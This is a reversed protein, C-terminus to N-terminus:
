RFMVLIRLELYDKMRLPSLIQNNNFFFWNTVETEGYLCVYAVFGTSIKDNQWINKTILQFPFIYQNM